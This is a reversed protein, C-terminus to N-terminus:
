MRVCVLMRVLVDWNNFPKKRTTRLVGASPLNSGDTWGAGHRVTGLTEVPEAGRLGQSCSRMRTSGTFVYGNKDTSFKSGCLGM